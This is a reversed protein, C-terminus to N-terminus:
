MLSLVIAIIVYILVIGTVCGLWFGDLIGNCYTLYKPTQKVEKVRVKKVWGRPIPIQELADQPNSAKATITHREQYNDTYKVIYEKM